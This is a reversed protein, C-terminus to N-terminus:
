TCHESGLRKDGVTNATFFRLLVLWFNSFANSCSSGLHSPLPAAAPKQKCFRINDNRTSGCQWVPRSVGRDERVEGRRPSEKAYSERGYINEGDLFRKAGHFWTKKKKPKACEPSLPRKLKPLNLALSLVEQSCCIVISLRNLADSANKGLM